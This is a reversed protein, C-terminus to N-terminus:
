VFLEFKLFGLNDNQLVKEVFLDVKKFVVRVVLVDGDHGDFLIKGFYNLLFYM